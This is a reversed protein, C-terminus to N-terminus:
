PNVINQIFQSTQSKITQLVTAIRTIRTILGLLPPQINLPCSYKSFVAFRRLDCVKDYMTTDLVLHFTHSDFEYLKSSIPVTKLVHCLDGVVRDCNCLDGLSFLIGNASLYM